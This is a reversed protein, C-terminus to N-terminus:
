PCSCWPVARCRGACSGGSSRRCRGSHPPSDPIGPWPAVTEYNLHLDALDRGAKSFAWFDTPNEVLPIRPLMKKLDAAFTERYEPAHLFGYVYYFIDEKTIKFDIQRAQELIFDTIGDHRVYDSDQTDFFGCQKHEVREYWYLSFCQTGASM